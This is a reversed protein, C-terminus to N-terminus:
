KNRFNLVKKHESIRYMLLADQNGLITNCMKCSTLLQTKRIVKMVDATDEKDEDDKYAPFSYEDYESYM